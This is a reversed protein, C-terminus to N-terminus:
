FLPLYSSLSSSSLLFPPWAPLLVKMELRTFTMPPFIDRKKDKEWLKEEVHIKRLPFYLSFSLSLSIFLYFFLTLSLFCICVNLVWKTMMSYNRYVFHEISLTWKIYSNEKKKEREEKKRGREGGKKKRESGHFERLLFFIPSITEESM